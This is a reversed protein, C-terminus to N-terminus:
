ASFIALPKWDCSFVVYTNWEGSTTDAPDMVIFRNGARAVYVSRSTTVISSDGTVKRAYALAAATCTPSDAVLVVLGPDMAPLKYRVRTAQLVSDTGAVLRRAYSRLNLAEGGAPRCAPQADVTTGSAVMLIASVLLSRVFCKCCDARRM